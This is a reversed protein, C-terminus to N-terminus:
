TLSVSRATTMSHSLHDLSYTSLSFLLSEKPMLLVKVIFLFVCLAFHIYITVYIFYPHLIHMDVFVM